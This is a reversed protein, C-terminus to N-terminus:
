YRDDSVKRHLELVAAHSHKRTHRQLLRCGLYLGTAVIVWLWDFVGLGDLKLAHGLFPVYIVVVLCVFGGVLARQLLLNDWLHPTTVRERHAVRSLLLNASQCLWLTLLAVATARFYLPNNTSAYSASLGNRTFCFVFNAYALGAALLGFLVINTSLEKTYHPKTAHALARLPLLLLLNFLVLQLATLALPVHWVVKAVVGILIVLIEAAVTVRANYAILAHVASTRGLHRVFRRTVRQGLPLILIGVFALFVDM